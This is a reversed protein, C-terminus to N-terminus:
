KMDEALAKLYRDFAKRITRRRPWKMLLINKNFVHRLWRRHDAFPAASLGRDHRRYATGLVGTYRFEHMLALRIKLDWDEYISLATDYGGAEFYAERTMLFDRPVFCSRGLIEAGIWGERITPETGWVCDPREPRILLVNSFALVEKEEAQRCRRALDMEKELKLPNAYYDDSDLTTIYAGASALIAQHRAHAVGRNVPDLIVKVVGPRRKLYARLVAASDDSSGDDYVVVELDKFSQGLVSDLCGALYRANNYSAIIVSLLPM